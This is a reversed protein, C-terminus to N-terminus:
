GLPLTSPPTSEVTIASHVRGRKGGDGKYGLTCGGKDGRCRGEEQVEMKMWTSTHLSTYIGSHHGFPGEEVKGEDGKYGLTCGGRDGRYRGEAQVEMRMGIFTHFSIHIGGQLDFPGAEVLGSSHVMRRRGGVGGRMEGFVTREEKKFM